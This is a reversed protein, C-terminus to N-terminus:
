PECDCSAFIFFLIGSMDRGYFKYFHLLQELFAAFISSFNRYKHFHTAIDHFNSIKDIVAKLEFKFIRKRM